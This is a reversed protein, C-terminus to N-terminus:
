PGIFPRGRAVGGARVVRSEGGVCGGREREREDEAVEEGVRALTDLLPMSEEIGGREKGLSRGGVGVLLDPLPMSDEPPDPLPCPPDSPPWPPDSL